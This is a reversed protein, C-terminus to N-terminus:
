PAVGLADPSPTGPAATPRAFAAILVLVIITPGLLAWTLAHRRRQARIM